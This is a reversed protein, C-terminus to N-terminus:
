QTVDKAHIKLCENRLQFLQTQAHKLMKKNCRQLTNYAVVAPIAVVLGFATMVLAEGVPGAIKDLTAQGSYGMALLARHIGWVTGLLGVFPATAAVSALISLGSQLNSTFQAKLGAVHVDLWELLPTAQHFHQQHEHKAQSLQNQWDTLLTTQHKSNHKPVTLHKRLQILNLMRVILISWTAISMVLLIIAIAQIVWDSQQWLMSLNIEPHHTSTNM